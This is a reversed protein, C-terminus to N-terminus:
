QLPAAAGESVTVKVNAKRLVLKDPPPLFDTVVRVKGIEGMTCRVKKKRDMGFRAGVVQTGVANETLLRSIWTTRFPRVIIDPELHLYPFSARPVEM